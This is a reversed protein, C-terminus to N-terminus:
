ALPRKLKFKVPAPTYYKTRSGNTVDYANEQKKAKIAHLEAAAIAIQKNIKDDIDRRRQRTIPRKRGAKNLESPELGSGEFNRNLIGKRKGVGGNGPIIYDFTESSEESGGGDDGGGGGFDPTGDGSAKKIAKLWPEFHKRIKLDTQQQEALTDLSVGASAAWMRLPIPVGHATLKDLLDQFEATNDPKLSDLWQVKPMAYESAVISQLRSPRDAAFEAVMGAFPKNRVSQWGEDSYSDVSSLVVNSKHRRYNNALAIGPFVHDYFIIRTIMNRYAAFYQMMVSIAGQQNSYTADGSLFNESIGLGQMKIRAFADYTDTYKWYDDGRRIENVNISQRTTIVAGTPDHDAGLFLESVTRYDNATPEWQDDGITLHLIARQRKWVQDLTGRILAKEMLWVPLVRRLLSTGEYDSTMTQRALFVTNDPSLLISGNKNAKKNGEVIDSPILEILRTFEPLKSELIKKLQPPVNFRMIPPSGYIPVPELTVWDINQPSLNTYYGKEANWTLTGIFKGLTLYDVSLTPLLTRLRMAEVSGAYKQLRREDNLGTLVFDGFPFTSLLDVASGSIPDGHYMERYLRNLVENPQESIFGDLLPATMQPVVVNSVSSAAPLGSAAASYYSEATEMNENHRGMIRTFGLADHAAVLPRRTRIM